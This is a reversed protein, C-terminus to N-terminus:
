DPSPVYPPPAPVVGSQEHERVLAQAEDESHASSTWGCSCRLHVADPVESHENHTRTIEVEHEM